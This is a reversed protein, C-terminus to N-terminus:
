QSRVAELQCSSDSATRGIGRQGRAMSNNLAVTRVSEICVSM